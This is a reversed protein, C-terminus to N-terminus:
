LSNEWKKGWLGSKDGNHLLMPIINWLQKMRLVKKIVWLEVENYLTVDHIIFQHILPFGAANLYFTPKFRVNLNHSWNKKKKKQPKWGPVGTKEVLLISRWSIVSINNFTANFVMAGDHIKVTPFLSAFKKNNKLTIYVCFICTIKIHFNHWYIAQMLTNAM